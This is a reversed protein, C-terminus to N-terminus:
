VMTSPPKGPPMGFNQLFREHGFWSQDRAHIVVRRNQLCQLIQEVSRTELHVAKRRRFLKQRAPPKIRRSAQDGVDSEAPYGAQLQLATQCGATRLNWNDDDRCERVILNPRSGDFRAGNTNKPLGDASFTEDVADAESQMGRSCGGGFSMMRLGSRCRIGQRGSEAYSGPHQEDAFLPKWHIRFCHAQLPRDHSRGRQNSNTSSTVSPRLGRRQGDM